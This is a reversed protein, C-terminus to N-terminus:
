KSASYIGSRAAMEATWAVIQDRDPVFFLNNEDSVEGAGAADVGRWALKLRWALGSEFGVRYAGGEDFAFYVKGSSKPFVLRETWIGDGAVRDGHTGDDYMDYSPWSGGATAAGTDVDLNFTGKIKLPPTFSESPHSADVWVGKLSRCDVEVLIEATKKLAGAPLVEVRAEAELVRGGVSARARVLAQGPNAPAIFDVENSVRTPRLSGLSSSWAIEPLGGPMTLRLSLPLVGGVEVGGAEPLIQISPSGSGLSACSALGLGLGLLFTAAAAACLKGDRTRGPARRGRGAPGEDRPRISAALGRYKEM